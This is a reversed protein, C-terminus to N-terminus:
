LRTKRIEGDGAEHEEGEKEENETLLLPFDRWLRQLRQRLILFSAVTILAGAALLWANGTRWGSSAIALGLIVFGVWVFLCFITRTALQPPAGAAQLRIWLLFAVLAFPVLGILWEAWAVMFDTVAKLM